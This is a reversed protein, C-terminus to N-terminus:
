QEIAEFMVARVDEMQWQSYNGAKKVADVDTQELSAWKTGDITQVTYRVDYPNGGICMTISDAHVAQVAYDNKAM